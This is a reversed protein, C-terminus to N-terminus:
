PSSHDGRAATSSSLYALAITTCSPSRSGCSPSHAGSSGACLRLAACSGVLICLRYHIFSHICTLLPIHFLVSLHLCSVGSLPRGRMRHLRPSPPLRTGPLSLQGRPSLPSLPSSRGNRPEEFDLPPEQSPLGEYVDDEDLRPVLGMHSARRESWLLIGVLPALLLPM